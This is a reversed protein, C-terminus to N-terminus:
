ARFFDGHLKTAAACYASHADEKTYYCGLYVVKKNHTIQAQWCKGTNKIWPLFRVGKLGNKNTTKSNARNQGHTAERLNVIRNDSKNGNIHDIQLKPFIKHVWFWALRHASYSKGNYEIYTYGKDKKLYGAKDGMNIKPRPSIWHFEGTEPNYSLDSILQEHKM